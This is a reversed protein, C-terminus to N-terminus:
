VLVNVPEWRLTTVSASSSSALLAPHWLVVVLAVYRWNVRQLEFVTCALHMTAMLTLYSTM